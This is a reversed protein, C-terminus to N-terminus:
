LRQELRQLRKKINEVKKNIQKSTLNFVVGMEKASLPETYILKIFIEEQNEIYSHSELKGRYDSIKQFISTKTEEVAIMSFHHSDDDIEYQVSFKIYFREDPTFSDLLSKDLYNLRYSINLFERNDLRIANKLKYIIRQENSLKEILAEIDVRDQNTIKNPEIEEVIENIYSKSKVFDIFRNEITGRIYNVFKEKHLLEILTPQMVEREDQLSEDILDKLIIPSKYVRYRQVRKEILDRMKSDVQLIANQILALGTDFDFAKDRYEKSIKKTYHTAVEKSNEDLEIEEGNQTLNARVKRFVNSEQETDFRKIYKIIRDL